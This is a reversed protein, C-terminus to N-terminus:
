TLAPPSIYGLFPCYWNMPQSGSSCLLRSALQAGDMEREAEQRPVIPGPAKQWRAKWVTILQVTDGPGTIWFLGLVDTSNKAVTALVRGWRGALRFLPLCVMVSFLCHSPKTNNM